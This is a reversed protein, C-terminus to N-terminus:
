FRCANNQLKYAAFFNPRVMQDLPVFKVDMTVVRFNVTFILLCHISVSMVGPVQIQVQLM